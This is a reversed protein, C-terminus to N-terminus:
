DITQKDAVGEAAEAAEAAAAVAVEAAVIDAAAGAAATGAAAWVIAAEAAVPERTTEAVAVLDEEAELLPVLDPRHAATVSRTRLAVAVQVLELEPAVVQATELEPVVGPGIPLGLEAAVLVTPKVVGAVALGIAREPEVVLGIPLGLEVAAPDHELEVAVLDIPRRLGALRAATSIRQKGTGMPHMEGTNRTTSGIVRDRAASTATSITTRITIIITTSRLTAVTGIAIAGTAAGLAGPPPV